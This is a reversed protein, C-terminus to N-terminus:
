EDPIDKVAVLETELRSIKWGTATQLATVRYVLSYEYAAYGFSLSGDEIVTEKTEWVKETVPFACSLGGGHLRKCETPSYIEYSEVWVPIDGAGYQDYLQIGLDLAQGTTYLSLKKVFEERSGWDWNMQTFDVLRALVDAVAQCDDDPDTAAGATSVLLTYIILVCIIIRIPKM